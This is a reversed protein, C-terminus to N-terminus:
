RPRTPSAPANLLELPLHAVDSPPPRTERTHSLAATHAACAATRLFTNGRVVLRTKTFEDLMDCDGQIVVVGSPIGFLHVGGKVLVM